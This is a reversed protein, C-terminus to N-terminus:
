VCQPRRRHVLHSPTEGAYPADSPSFPRKRDLSPSFPPEEDAQQKPERDRVVCPLYGLEIELRTGLEVPRVTSCSWEAAQVSLNLWPKLSTLSGRVTIKM